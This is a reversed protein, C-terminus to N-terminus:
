DVEDPVPFGVLRALAQAAVTLAPDMVAPPHEDMVALLRLAATVIPTDSEDLGWTAMPPGVLASGVRRWGFEDPEVGAVVIEPGPELDAETVLAPDYATCSCSKPFRCCRPDYGFTWCEPWAEVCLRLRRKEPM